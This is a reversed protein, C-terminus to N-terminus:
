GGVVSAAPVKWDLIKFSYNARPISHLIFSVKAPWGCAMVPQGPLYDTLDVELTLALENGALVAVSGSRRVTRNSNELQWFSVKLDSDTLWEISVTRMETSNKPYRAGDGACDLSDVYLEHALVGASAKTWALLLVIMLAAVFKPM